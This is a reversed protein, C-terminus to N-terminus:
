GTRALLEGTQGDYADIRLTSNSTTVTLKTSFHGRTVPVIVTQGDSLELRITSHGLFYNGTLTFPVGRTIPNVDTKLTPVARAGVIGVVALVLLLGVIISMLFQRRQRLTM